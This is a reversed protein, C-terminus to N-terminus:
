SDIFLLRKSQSMAPFKVIDQIKVNSLRIMFLQNADHSLSFMDGRMDLVIMSVSNSQTM